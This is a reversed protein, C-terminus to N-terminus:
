IRHDLIIKGERVSKVRAKFVDAVQPSPHVPGLCVGSVIRASGKQSAAITTPIMGGMSYGVIIAQDIKLHDMLSQVDEGIQSISTEPYLEAYYKSRGAGYNDFVVRRYKELYPLIPGYYNQTSGLGHVFVIAPAGPSGAYDTYHIERGGLKVFPM